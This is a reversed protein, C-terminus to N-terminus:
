DVGLLSRLTRTRVGCEGAFECSECKSRNDTRPPPGDLEWVTRLARRYRAKRRTTLEISRIEGYAPYELWAREISMEREWALAKAAAVAQVSQPEWVGQEPPAGASLLVPEVPEALVKHVVGRCDRGTTVVNRHLPEQLRGWEGAASLRDRTEELRDHYAGPSVAIPEAQLDGPPSELLEEYRTALARIRDVAPPPDPDGDRTRRYYYKRTCYTATRLDSFPVHQQTM